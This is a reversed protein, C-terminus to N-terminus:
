KVHEGRIKCSIWHNYYNESIIADRDFIEKSEFYSLSGKSKCLKLIVKTIKHGSAIDKNLDENSGTYTKWDSEVRKRKKKKDKQYTKSKTFLKKGVYFKGNTVNFIVYVFGINDEIMDDTFPQCDYFWESM